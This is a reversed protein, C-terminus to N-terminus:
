NKPAHAYDRFAGTLKTMDLTDTQGDTRVYWRPKWQLLNRSIQYKLSNGFDTLFNWIQNFEALFMPYEVRLGLANRQQRRWLNVM